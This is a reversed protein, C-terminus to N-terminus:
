QKETHQFMYLVNDSKFCYLHKIDKISFPSSVETFFLDFLQMSLNLHPMAQCFIEDDLEVVHVGTEDNVLTIVGIDSSSSSLNDDANLLSLNSDMQVASSLSRAPQKGARRRPSKTAMPSPRQGRSLRANPTRGTM